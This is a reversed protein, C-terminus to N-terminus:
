DALQVLKEFDSEKLIRIAAGKSILTEAKRHKSSKEQGALMRIDQDVVVLMTTKKTVSSAVECGASAALDAADRRVLNLAGTFVLVEGYFPGEPNGAREVSQSSSVSDPDIPQRVRSLWGEIDLDSKEVAALFIAKADHRPKDTM